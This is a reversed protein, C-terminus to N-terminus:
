VHARGIEGLEFRMKDKGNEGIKTPDYTYAPQAM